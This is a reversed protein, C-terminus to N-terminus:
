GDIESVPDNPESDAASESRNVPGAVIQRKPAASRCGSNPRLPM